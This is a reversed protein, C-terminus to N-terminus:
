AASRAGATTRADAVTRNKSMTDSTWTGGTLTGTNTGQSDAISTGSGEDMKWWGVRGSTINEDSYYRALCEDDTLARSYLRVDYLNGQTFLAGNQDMFELAVANDISGATAAYDVENTYTVDYVGNVFARFNEQTARTVSCIYHVWKGATPFVNSAANAYQTDDFVFSLKNTGVTADHFFAGYGVFGADRKEFLYSATSLFTEKKVKFECTFDGTGMDLAANDAIVIKDSSGNFRVSSTNNTVLVRQPRVPDITWMTTPTAGTTTRGVITGNNATVSSDTVTTGTGENLKDWLVLNSTFQTTNPGAAFLNAVDTSSWLGNNMRFDKISGDFHFLNGSDQGVFFATATAAFTTGTAASNNLFGDIYLSATGGGLTMVVHHWAKDIIQTKASVLDAVNPKTITLLNTALFYLGFGNTGKSFLFKKGVGNRKFWLSFSVNDLVDYAANDPHSYYQTSGNMKLAWEKRISEQLRAM